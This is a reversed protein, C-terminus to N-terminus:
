GRPWLPTPYHGDETMKQLAATVQPKDERYTVGYWKDPTTHVTVTARGARLEGDVATPLFFEAKLPNEALAKELFRPFSDGLRKMMDAPFGWMNMSVVTDPSLRTYTKGDETMLPGDVSSIIHTRETLDVLQNAADLECVGRAVYGTESLTNKLLYGVMAIDGDDRLSSLHRYCLEFAHAGYYDDANIACFPADVLGRASLVAHGTGWPKGRGNPATSGAPLDNLEQYAYDVRMHRSVRDGLVERFDKENERKIIIIAREFGARRADFLSYDLILEGNPGIPDMQKLGGYRSGMGAAMIVLIPKNM